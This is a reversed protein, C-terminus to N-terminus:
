WIRVRKDPALYLKDGPKVDFAPYWADHNKVTAPRFEAPSHVDTLLQQRLSAETSKVAWVQAFGLFFQQDGSFENWVPAERGGFAARYADYAADLGALDAINENLTQKGNVSLDALPKYTDYQAALKETAANFRALDAPKWWNRVRGTSDFRSGQTDFTHSIEHGILTGLTGYNVPVPALPDFFPPQLFAAPFTLANQLPLEMADVSQPNYVWEKRDVSRELRAVSRQYEFLRGRWLNGFADDARAEFASYDRWTEPYGIGVYLTTLKEKAEAKTAPDMWSLADIRRRFAAVINTVMTQIQSRTQPTFYRQAYFQGVAQGLLSHVLIAARQERPRQKTRGLLVGELFAFREDAMAKPLVFAYDELFHFALWDKWSELDESAVMASEGMFAAPQWVIIKAQQSLGAARFFEDWDLGPAKLRFDSQTWTNNAKGIDQSDALSEHKEAIAHELAVIRKARLEADTIGARKLLASVHTQYKARTDRMEPTDSLYYERDPMELGGQMLYAAYHSSDNFGPTVWLGFLNPTHYTGSNLADVDARLSEGLARALQSKDRIATISNLHPRIPALGKAEIAAEDMYSNYVDAIKRANSGAPAHAQAAEQILRTTQPTLDNNSDDVDTAFPDVYSHEEPVVARKLWAGNAYRYFDDGPRVSRDMNALLLGHDEDMASAVSSNKQVDLSVLICLSTLAALLRREICSALKM